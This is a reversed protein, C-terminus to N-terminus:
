CWRGCQGEITWTRGYWAYTPPAYIPGFWGLVRPTTDVDGYIRVEPRWYGYVRPRCCASKVVHAHRVMHTPRRVGDASAETSGTVALVPISAAVAVAALALNRM